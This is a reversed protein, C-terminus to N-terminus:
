DTKCTYYYMVFSVNAAIYFIWVMYSCINSIVPMSLAATRFFLAIDSILQLTMAAIFYSGYNVKFKFCNIMIIIFNSILMACATIQMIGKFSRFKDILVVGILLLVLIALRLILEYKRRYIFKGIVIYGAIFAIFGYTNDALVNLLVDATAAIGLFLVILDQKSDSADKINGVVSPKKECSGRKRFYILYVLAFVFATCTSAVLFIKTFPYVIIMDKAVNGGSITLSQFIIISVMFALEICLLIYNPLYRKMCSITACSVARTFSTETM